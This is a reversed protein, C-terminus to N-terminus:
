NILALREQVHFGQLEYQELSGDFEGNMQLPSIVDSYYRSTFVELGGNIFVEVSSTDVFIHLEELVDLHVSRKDRGCGCVGLELSLIQHEYRLTVGDRLEAILHTCCDFTVKCEYTIFADRHYYKHINEFHQKTRLSQFEQLPKQCLMGNNVYLERPMTLAHQWGKEVTPHNDYSADPIGMWALMIRRGQEDEFSQPAYMDFGHDLEKFKSLTYTKQDLDLFLEFYGFQYVNEFQIGQTKVGQPCCLLFMKGDLEFIDPCEWMYGFPEKTSICMHYEWHQLDLSKYLIVCGVDELTRAGLVMYYAGDKEFVKPDRVHCSMNSPYDQNTLVLRKADQTVGDKSIVEITNQERGDSIYNYDQDLHKVNGTYFYHIKDDLVYASGSYVGDKDYSTDAFLFPEEEQYTIWDKTTVHGWLKMGWNPTLPSYQYYIHNIGKFQCLGNPDNLWGTPPMIHFALRYPDSNVREKMQKQLSISAIYDEKTFM